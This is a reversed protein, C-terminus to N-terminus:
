YQIIQLKCLMLVIFCTSDQLGMSLFLDMSMLWEFNLDSCVLWAVVTSSLHPFLWLWLFNGFNQIFWCWSTLTCLGYNQFSTEFRIIRKEAICLYLSSDQCKLKRLLSWAFFLSWWNLAFELLRPSFMLCLKLNRVLTLIFTKFKAEKKWNLNFLRRWAFYTNILTCHACSFYALFYSFKSSEYYFRYITCFRM